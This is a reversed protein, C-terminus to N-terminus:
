DAEFEYINGVVEPALEWRTAESLRYAEMLRANEGDSVFRRAANQHFYMDSTIARDPVCWVSSHAYYVGPVNVRVHGTNCALFVITRGPHRAKVLALLEAASVVHNDPQYGAGVIWEGSVFDGGHVLVGVAYPFRRAIEDRWLDAYVQLSPDFVEMVVAPKSAELQPERTFLSCAALVAIIIFTIAYKM